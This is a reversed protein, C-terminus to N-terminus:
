YLQQIKVKRCCVIYLPAPADLIGVATVSSHIDDLQHDDDSRDDTRDQTNASAEDDKTDETAPKHGERAASFGRSAQTDEDAQIVYVLGPQIVKIPRHFLNALASLEIHTGYTGQLRMSAVHGEFGGPVSDEDVFLRFRDPRDAIFECVDHRLQLHHTPDGFLQDSLARFLCNGDGLTHAAYLGMLKLQAALVRESVAPDEILKPREARTKSRARPRYTVKGKGKGRDPKGSKGM